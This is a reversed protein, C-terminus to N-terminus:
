SGKYSARREAAEAARQKRVEKPDAILPRYIEVRDGEKMVYENAEPMGRSGLANGFIGKPASIMDIGPFHQDIGSLGVTEEATTGPEVMLTLIKQKDPTAYAVEVKIKDSM